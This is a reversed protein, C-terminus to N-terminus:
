PTAAAPKVLSLGHRWLEMLKLYIGRCARADSLARHPEGPDVSFYAALSELKVNPVLGAQLLPMAMAVTDIKHYDGGWRMSAPRMAAEFFGWDFPANHAAFMAGRSMQILRPMVSEIQTASSAWKEQSYGNVEAAKPHVPKKPFVRASFEEIVREGTPDTLVVGVEVMDADWHNLGGTESDFFFLNCDKAAPRPM